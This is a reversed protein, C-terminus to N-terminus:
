VKLIILNKKNQPIRIFRLIKRPTKKMLSALVIDKTGPM